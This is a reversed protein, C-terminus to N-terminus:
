TTSPARRSSRNCFTASSALAAPFVDGSRDSVGAVRGDVVFEVYVLPGGDPDTAVAEFHASDATVTQGM